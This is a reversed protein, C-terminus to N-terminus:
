QHVRLFDLLRQDGKGLEQFLQSSLRRNLFEVGRGISRSEKLKPFERSFPGIDFEVTWGNDQPQGAVLHEKFALFESITVPELQISEVHIRLYKWRAVYPRVALYIWPSEIAAEQASEIMKFLPSESLDIDPNENCYAQLEDWLESKLLFAKGLAIYRRLLMYCAERNQQM